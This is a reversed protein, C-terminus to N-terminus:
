RIDAATVQLLDPSPIIQEFIPVYLNVALVVEDYGRDNALDAAFAAANDSPGSFDVLVLLTKM